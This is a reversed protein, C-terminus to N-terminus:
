RRCTVHLTARYPGSGATRPLVIETACFHGLDATLATHYGEVAAGYDSWELEALCTRARCDIGHLSYGGDSGGAVLGRELDPVLAAAWAPDAAEHAHSELKQAFDAQRREPDAAPVASSPAPPPAAVLHPPTRPRKVTTTPTPEEFEESAVAVPRERPSVAAVVRTALLCGLGGVLVGLVAFPWKASSTQM